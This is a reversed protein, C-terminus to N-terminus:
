LKRLTTSNLHQPPPTPSRYISSVTIKKNNIQLEITLCEFTKYIFKSLKEIKKYTIGEKIYFGVGGGNKHSRQSHIFNFNPISILELHHIKWTEQLALIHIPTNQTESLLQAIASHKSLLSQTNLSALIPQKTNNFAQTLSNQDYFTCTNLPPPPPLLTPDDIDNPDNKLLYSSPYPNEFKPNLNLENLSQSQDNIM